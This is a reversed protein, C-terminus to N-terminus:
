VSLRVVGFANLVVFRPIGKSLPHSLITALSPDHCRRSLRVEDSYTGSTKGYLDVNFLVQHPDFGLAKRHEEIVGKM